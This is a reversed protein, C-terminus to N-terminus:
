LDDPIDFTMKKENVIRALKNLPRRSEEDVDGRFALLLTSLECARRSIRVYYSLDQLVGTIGYLTCGVPEGTEISRCITVQETIPDSYDLAGDVYIILADEDRDFYSFPTFEEHVPDAALLKWIDRDKNM